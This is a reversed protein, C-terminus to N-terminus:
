LGGVVGTIHTCDGGTMLLAQGGRAAAAVEAAITAGLAGLNDTEEDSRLDEPFAPESIEVPVHAQQYVKAALYANLAREDGKAPRSGRYRVGTVHLGSLPQSSMDRGGCM